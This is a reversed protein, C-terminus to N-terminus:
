VGLEGQRRAKAGGPSESHQERQRSRQERQRSKQTGRHGPATLAKPRRESTLGRGFPGGQGAQGTARGEGPVDAEPLCSGKTDQEEAAGLLSSSASRVYENASHIPCLSSSSPLQPPPPSLSPLPSLNPQISPALLPRPCPSLHVSTPPASLSSGRSPLISTSGLLLHSGRHITHM